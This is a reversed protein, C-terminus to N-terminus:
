CSRWCETNSYYNRTIHPSLSLPLSLSLSLTHTHSVFSVIRRVIESSRVINPANKKAFPVHNKWESRVRHIKPVLDLQVNVVIEDDQGSQSIHLSQSFYDSTKSRSNFLSIRRNIIHGFYYNITRSEDFPPFEQAFFKAENGFDKKSRSEQYGSASARSLIKYNM